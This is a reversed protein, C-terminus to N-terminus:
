PQEYVVLPLTELAGVVMNAISLARPDIFTAFAVVVQGYANWSITYGTGGGVDNAWAAVQDVIGISMGYYKATAMIPLLEQYWLAPMINSAPPLANDLEGGPGNPWLLADSLGFQPSQQPPLTADVLTMVYTNFFIDSVLPRPFGCLYGVFDLTGDVDQATEISLTQWYEILPLDAFREAMIGDMTAQVAPGSLQQALYPNPNSVSM